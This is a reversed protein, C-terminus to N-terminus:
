IHILSLDYANRRATVIVSDIQTPAATQAWAPAALAALLLACPAASTKLSM